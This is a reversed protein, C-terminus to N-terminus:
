TTVLKERGMFRTNDHQMYYTFFGKNFFDIAVQLCYIVQLVICQLTKMCHHIDIISSEPFEKPGLSRFIPNGTDSVAMDTPTPDFKHSPTAGGWFFYIYIYLAPHPEVEARGAGM